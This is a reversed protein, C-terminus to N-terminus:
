CTFRAFANKMVCPFTSCIINPGRNLVMLQLIDAFQKPIQCNHLAHIRLAAGRSSDICYFADASHTLM